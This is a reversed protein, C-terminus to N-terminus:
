IHEWDFGTLTTTYYNNDKVETLIKISHSPCFHYCSLCNECDNDIVIKNNQLSIAQMPCLKICKQCADCSDKISVIPQRQSRCYKRFSKIKLKTFFKRSPIKFVDDKIEQAIKQIKVEAKSLITQQEQLSPLTDTIPNTNPMLVFDLYSSLINAEMALNEVIKLSFGPGKSCTTIGGFFELRDYSPDSLVNQLLAAVGIPPHSNNTPFVLIIEKPNGMLLPDDLINNGMIVTDYNLYDKLKNAVYYSNGTASFCIIIKDSM